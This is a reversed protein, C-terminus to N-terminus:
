EGPQEAREANRSDRRPSADDAEGDLSQRRLLSIVTAPRACVSGLALYMDRQFRDAGRKPDPSPPLELMETRPFTYHLYPM